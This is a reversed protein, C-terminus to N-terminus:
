QLGTTHSSPGSQQAIVKWKPKTTLKYIVFLLGGVFVTMPIMSLVSVNTLGFVAFFLSPIIYIGFFLSACGFCGSISKRRGGDYLKYLLQYIETKEIDINGLNSVFEMQSHLLDFQKQNGIFYNSGDYSLNTLLNNLIDDAFRAKIVQNDPYKNILQRYSAFSDDVNGILYTLNAFCMEWWSLDHIGLSTSRDIVFRCYKIARDYSKIQYLHQVKKIRMGENMPNHRVVQDIAFIADEILNLDVLARYEILWAQPNDSDIEFVRRIAARASEPSGSDLYENAVMIWHQTDVPSAHQIQRQAQTAIGLLQQDYVMRLERNLLTDEAESLTSMMLEANIRVQQDPAGVLQRYRKRATRIADTIQEPDASTPIGLIEYYNSSM